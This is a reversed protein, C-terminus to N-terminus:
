AAEESVTKWETPVDHRAVALVARAGLEGLAERFVREALPYTNNHRSVHLATVSRTRPGVLARLAQAAAENSLHGVDSLIRRKLAPPYPGERLLDEDHNAELGLAECDSLAELVPRSLHGLDTVMGVRRGAGDAFVYCVSEVGDHPTSTVRVHLDGIVLDRGGRVTRVDAFLPGPFGAADATGATAYVPVGAKRSLALAGTVHDSHEHTLFVGSVDELAVGRLALRKKTERLSLGADVLVATKGCRVVACNGSSGSGLFAVSLGSPASM